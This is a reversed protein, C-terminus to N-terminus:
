RNFLSSFFGKPQALSVPKEPHQANYVDVLYREYKNYFEPDFNAEALHELVYDITREELLWKECLTHRLRIGLVNFGTVVKDAKRYHIRILEKKRESQWVLAGISEDPQPDIVGYTQYEITFFKASNFFLPKQYAKKTGCIVRAVAKGHHRGTYWLQDIRRYGIGDERYEACDGIAYVDPVSTEFFENVLIGRNTEVNSPQVVDINPTVGTTLGLFQCPIEEGGTTVIARVRGQADGLVEKMETNLRLDIHHDRIEQNIMESELRPLVHGFYTNERVLFTIPTHRTHLMEVMEIGILGGGVVVAQEIGQTYIEMSELDAYSYLGQVGALDQGPWGFFRPKSGVALILVDYSVDPASAMSLTKTETDIKEVYDKLLEIRNDAWFSDAYPKTDEYRMHGMYIYMLATRSFFHETETSIITLRYDSWKRIFRAATVGSIGNGIIVVHKSM